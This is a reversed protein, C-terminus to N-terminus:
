TDSPKSPYSVDVPVTAQCDILALQSLEAQVALKQAALMAELEAAKHPETQSYVEAAHDAFAYPHRRLLAAFGSSAKSQEANAQELNDAKPNLARLAEAILANIDPDASLNQAYHLNDLAQQPQQLTLQLAALEVRPAVYDPLYTLASEYYEIAAQPQSEKLLEAVQYWAWAIPYPSM